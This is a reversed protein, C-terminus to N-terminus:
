EKEITASRRGHKRDTTKERHRRLQQELKRMSEDLCAMLNGSEDTAVFDDAREASVRIEMKPSDRSELDITVDAATLRDHFRTLKQVKSQIRDETESSIQGHRTSVTIQM